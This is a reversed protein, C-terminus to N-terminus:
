NRRLRDVLNGEENDVVEYELPAIVTWRIPYRHQTAKNFSIYGHSDNYDPPLLRDQGSVTFIMNARKIWPVLFM